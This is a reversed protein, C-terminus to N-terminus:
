SKVGISLWECMGPGIKFKVKVRGHVNQAVCILVRSDGSKLNAVKLTTESIQTIKPPSIPSFGKENIWFVDPKPKGNAKCDLLDASSGNM